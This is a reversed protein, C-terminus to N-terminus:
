YQGRRARVRADGCFLDDGLALAVTVTEPLAPAAV